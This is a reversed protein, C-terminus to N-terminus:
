KESLRKKSQIESTKVPLWVSSPKGHGAKNKYAQYRGTHKILNNKRLYGIVAGLVRKERPLGLILYLHESLDESTFSLFRESVWNVSLEVALDYYGQNNETVTQIAEEKTQLEKSM